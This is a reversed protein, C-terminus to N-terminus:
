RVRPARGPARWRAVGRTRARRRRGARTRDPRARCCRAPPLRRPSRGTPSGAGAGAASSRTFRASTATAANAKREDGHGRGEGRSRRDVGPDVLRIRAETIREAVDDRRRDVAREDVAGADGVVDCRERPEPRGHLPSRDRVADPVDRHRLRNRAQGGGAELPAPSADGKRRARTEAPPSTATAGRTSTVTPERTLEAATFADSGTNRRGAPRGLGVYRTEGEDAAITSASRPM